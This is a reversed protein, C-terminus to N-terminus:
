DALINRRVVADIRTLLGNTRSLCLNLRALHGGDLLRLESNEDVTLPIFMSPQLATQTDDPLTEEDSVIESSVWLLHNALLEISQISRRKAANGLYTVELNVDSNFIRLAGIRVRVIKQGSTEMHGIRGYWSHETTSLIPAPCQAMVLCKIGSLTVGMSRVPCPGELRLLDAVTHVGAERLQEVAAHPLYLDLGMSETPNPAHVRQSSMYTQDSRPETQLIKYLEDRKM